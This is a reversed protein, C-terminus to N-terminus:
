GGSIPPIIAISDRENFELDNEEECVQENKAILINNKITSLNYNEVLINILKKYSIKSPLRITSERTGALEKSRAFFLLKVTVGHEIEM